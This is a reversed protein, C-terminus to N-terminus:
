APMMHCMKGRLHHHLGYGKQLRPQEQPEPMRDDDFMQVDDCSVTRNDVMNSDQHTPIDPNEPCSSLPLEMKTTMMCRLVIELVKMKMGMLCRIVIELVKMKMAMIFRMMTNLVEM